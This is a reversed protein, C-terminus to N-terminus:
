AKAETTTISRTSAPSLATTTPMAALPSGRSCCRRTIAIPMTSAISHRIANASIATCSSAIM